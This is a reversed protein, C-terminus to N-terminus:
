IAEVIGIKNINLKFYPKSGSQTNGGQGPPIEQSSSLNALAKWKYLRINMWKYIYDESNYPCETGTIYEFFRMDNFDITDNINALPLTIGYPAPIPYSPDNTFVIDSIEQQEKLEQYEWSNNIYKYIKMEDKVLVRMKATPKIFIWGDGRSLEAIENNHGYWDTGIDGTLILYKDGISVNQFVAIKWTDGLPIYKTLDVTLTNISIYDVIPSAIEAGKNNYIKVTPSPLGLNHNVTLKHTTPHLDENTFYRNYSPPPTTLDKDVVEIDAPRIKKDFTLRMELVQYFERKYQSGWASNKVYATNASLEMDLKFKSNPTLEIENNFSCTMTFESIYSENALTQWQGSWSETENYYGEIYIKLISETDAPILDVDFKCIGGDGPYGFWKWWQARNSQLNLARLSWIGIDGTVTVTKFAGDRWNGEWGYGSGIEEQVIPFPIYDVTILWQEIKILLSDLVDRFDQLLQYPATKHGYKIVYYPSWDRGLIDVVSDYGYDKILKNIIKKLQLYHASKLTRKTGYLPDPEVPYWASYAPQGIQQRLYDVADQLEKFYVAFSFIKNRLRGHILIPYTTPDLPDPYSWNFAM